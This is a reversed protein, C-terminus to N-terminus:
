SFNKKVAIGVRRPVFALIERPILRLAFLCHCFARWATEMSKMKGAAHHAYAKRGFNGSDMIMRYMRDAHRCDKGSLPAYAAACTLGLRRHLMAVVADFAKLYGLEHLRARLAPKDIDDKYADLLVAVDSVQRLGVGEVLLHNFMHKFVVAVDAAPPLVSLPEGGVFVSAAQRMVEAEIWADFARQAGARGFTEIRRHMEFRVGRWCFSDHKDLDDREIAIGWEQEIAEGARVFDGPVVYFDVDGMTRLYPQAYHSAVAWGKFVAYRISHRRFLAAMDHLVGAFKGHAAKHMQEVQMMGMVLAQRKQRKGANGADGGKGQRDGNDDALRAQGTIFPHAVLAAVTHERALTLTKSLLVVNGEPVAGGQWLAHRLLALLYEEDTM